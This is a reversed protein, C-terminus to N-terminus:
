NPVSVHPQSRLSAFLLLVVGVSIASDAVNFAPWVLEFSYHRGFLEFSAVKDYWHLLIFDVVTGRFVRDIMNSVAGSLIMALPTLVGKNQAPTKHFYVLLLTIAIVSVGYFFFIRGYSDWQAFMGFAAGPNRYHVLDLFNPLIEIKAGQRLRSDVLYKTFQDLMVVFSGIWALLGWKKKM